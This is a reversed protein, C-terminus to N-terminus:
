KNLVLKNKNIIGIVKGKMEKGIFASNKSKSLIDKEEFNYNTAPEFITLCAVAATEIVPMNLGFVKRNNETFIKVLLETNNVITNVTGYVTQLTIM